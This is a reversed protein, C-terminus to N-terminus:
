SSTMCLKELYTASFKCCGTQCGVNSSCAQNLNLKTVVSVSYYSSAVPAIYTTPTYYASPTVLVVTPSSKYSTPRYTTRTPTPPKYYNKKTVKKTTTTTTTTVRRYSKRRLNRGYGDYEYAGDIDSFDLGFEPEEEDDGYEYDDLYAPDEEEEYAGGFV